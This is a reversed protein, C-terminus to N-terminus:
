DFFNDWFSKSKSKNKQNQWYQIYREQTIIGIPGNYIGGVNYGDYVRVAITNEKNAQILGDPLYYGRLKQYNKSKILENPTHSKMDGTSGILTGNVYTEDMDDIRGLILVLKKNALNDPLIFNIRYWAIGDYKSYGQSEWSNPVIIKDWKSDNYKKEKWEPNDDAKFKWMGTLDFDVKLSNDGEFLGVDGRTIGGLQQSDYVRVAIVNDRDYNVFKESLYYSRWEYYASSYNPPFIGSSGILHGNFFVQDVDDIQGLNLRFDKGNYSSSVSFHKRYWAYGDYGHYGQDEWSSPVKINEWNRDNYDPKSWDMDDGISFKWYGKLNILRERNQGNIFQGFSMIVILVFLFFKIRM